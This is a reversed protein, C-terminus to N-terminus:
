TSPAKNQKTKSNTTLEMDVPFRTQNDQATCIKVVKKRYEINTVRRRSIWNPYPQQRM